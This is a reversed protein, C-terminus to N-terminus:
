THVCVCVGVCVCVFMCLSATGKSSDPGQLIVMQTYMAVQYWFHLCGKHNHTYM